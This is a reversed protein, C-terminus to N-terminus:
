FSIVPNVERLWPFGLIMVVRDLDFDCTIFSHRLTKVAEESDTATIAIKHRRYTIVERGKVTAM